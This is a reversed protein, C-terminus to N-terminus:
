KVGVLISLPKPIESLLPRWLHLTNPHNNVYESKKPHLQMVVDEDDWFLDKVFCMEDWLPTQLKTERQSIHIEVHVSVHEWGLGDSAIIWLMRGNPRPISFAGNNGFMSNSGARGTVIRYKEPVHFM